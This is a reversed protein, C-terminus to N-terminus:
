KRRGIFIKWKKRFNRRYRSKYENYKREGKQISKIQMRTKSALFAEYGDYKNKIIDPIMEYRPDLGMVTPNNTQKIRNILEDM